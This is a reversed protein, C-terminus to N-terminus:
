QLYVHNITVSGSDDIYRTGIDGQASVTLNAASGHHNLLAMSSVGTRVQVGSPNSELVPTNAELTSTPSPAPRHWRTQNLLPWKDHTIGSGVLLLLLALATAMRANWFSPGWAFRWSSRVQTTRVCAGAELGLRINARMDAALFNWNVGPLDVDSLENCLESRLAQYDAVRAQCQECGRVHRELLFRRARGAEGGALLALDNEVPHGM